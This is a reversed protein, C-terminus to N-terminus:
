PADVINIKISLILFISVQCGIKDLARYAIKGVLQNNFRLCEKLLHSQM